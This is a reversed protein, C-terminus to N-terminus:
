AKIKGNSVFKLMLKVSVLLADVLIIGEAFHKRVKQAFKRIEVLIKENERPLKKNGPHFAYQTIVHCTPFTGM